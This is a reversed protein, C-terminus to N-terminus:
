PGHNDTLVTEDPQKRFVFALLGGDTLFQREAGLDVHCPFRDIEALIRDQERRVRLHVDVGALPDLGAACGADDAAEDLGRALDIQILVGQDIDGTRRINQCGNGLVDHRHVQATRFKRVRRELAQANQAVGGHLDIDAIGPDILSLLPHSGRKGINRAKCVQDLPVDALKGDCAPRYVDGSALRDHHLVTRFDIHGASGGTEFRPRDLRGLQDGTSPKNIDAGRSRVHNVVPNIVASEGLRVELEPYDIDKM